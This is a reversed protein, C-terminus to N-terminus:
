VALPKRFPEAVSQASTRTFLKLMM